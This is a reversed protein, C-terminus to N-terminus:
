YFHAVEQRISYGWDTCAGCQERYQPNADLVASRVAQEDGPIHYVAASIRPRFRALTSRAGALAHREAGEIDMKIVNVRRLHLDAVLRDITTLPVTITAAGVKRMAVSDAGSGEPDLSLEMHAEESWVGKEVVIVRGAAIEAALNRRLCAANLPAPEIAVVLEAGARLAKKTFLGYHAGCDLVVDGPRLQAGRYIDREQEALFLVFLRLNDKAVAWFRDQGAQWLELGAESDTKILRITGGIRKEAAVQAVTARVADVSGSLTCSGSKGAAYLLVARSPGFSCAVALLGAGGCVTIAAKLLLAAVRRSPLYVIPFYILM